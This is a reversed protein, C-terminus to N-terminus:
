GRKRRNPHTAHHNKSSPAAKTPSEVLKISGIRLEEVLDSNEIAKQGELHMLIDNLQEQLEAIEAEKEALIKEHEKQNKLLQELMSADNQWQRVIEAKEKKLSEIKKELNKVVIEKNLEEQQLKISIENLSDQLSVILQNSEHLKAKAQGSLTNELANMKEEYFIRQSELQAALLSSIYDPDEHKKEMADPNPSAPHSIEVLKGDGQNHALRHVYNDGVYDWVRHSEIELSFTHGTEEYHATAHRCKYRWCGVNGCILCVWLNEKCGCDQCRAGGNDHEDSLLFRCVPCSGDEWKSLCSCHFSHSCITTIISSISSDLRELCVPCSPIEVSFSFDYNQVQGIQSKFDNQDFLPIVSTVQTSLEIEGVRLVHCLEPELATFPQGTFTDIFVDAKESSSFRILAMYKGPATNRILRLDVIGEAPKIFTLFDAPTIISPIAPILLVNEEAHFDYIVKLVGQEQEKPQILRVSNKHTEPQREIIRQLHIVGSAVVSTGVVFPVYDPDGDEALFINIVYNGSSFHVISRINM